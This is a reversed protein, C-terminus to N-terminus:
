KNGIVAKCIFHHTKSHTLYLLCKEQSAFISMPLYFSKLVLEAVMGMGLLVVFSAAKGWFDALTSSRVKFKFSSAPLTLFGGVEGEVVNKEHGFAAGAHIALINIIKIKLHYIEKLGKEPLGHHEPLPRDCSTRQPQTGPDGSSFCTQDGNNGRSLECCSNELM